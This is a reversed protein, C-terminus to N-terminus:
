CFIPQAARPSRVRSRAPRLRQAPALSAARVADVPAMGLSSARRVGRDLHGERVLEHPPVDDTVFVVNELHGHQKWSEVAQPINDRHMTCCIEITMGLRSRSLIGGASLVEHDSDVRAALYTNLERGGLGRIHGTIIKGSRARGASDRHHAAVPPDRGLLGDGGGPRDCGRQALMAEVEPM